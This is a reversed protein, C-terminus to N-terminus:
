ALEQQVHQLSTEEIIQRIPHRKNRSDDEDPPSHDGSPDRVSVESPTASEAGPRNSPHIEEQDEEVSTPRTPLAATTTPQAEM